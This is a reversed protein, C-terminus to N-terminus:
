HPDEIRDLRMLFIGSSSSYNYSPSELLVQDAKGTDFVVDGSFHGAVYISDDGLVDIAWSRDDGKGGIDLAWSLSGDAGYSAVFIDQSGGECRAVEGQEGLGFLTQERCTGSAVIEGGSLVGVGLFSMFSNDSVASVSWSRGGQEDFRVLCTAEGCEPPSVPATQDGVGIEMSGDYWRGGVLLGGDALPEIPVGPPAMVKGDIGMGVVRVLDGSGPDLWAVFVDGDVAATLETEGPEGPGFVASDRFAGSVVVTGDDLVAVGGGSDNGAGGASKAWALSGDATYLAAFVDTDGASELITENATGVGFAATGVFQGTVACSGDETAAVDIGNESSAGGAGRAWVIAGDPGYRAVFVDYNGQSALSAELPDGQGFVAGAEDFRGTVCASGDGTGDVSWAFDDGGGGASRAWVPAGDPDLRALFADTWGGHSAVAIEDATGEGFV